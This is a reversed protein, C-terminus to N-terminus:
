KKFFKTRRWIKKEGLPIEKLFLSLYFCSSPSLWTAKQFCFSFFVTEVFYKSVLSSEVFNLKNQEFHNEPKSRRGVGHFQIKVYIWIDIVRRHMARWIVMDQYKDCVVDLRKTQTFLIVFIVIPYKNRVGRGRVVDLNTYFSHCM